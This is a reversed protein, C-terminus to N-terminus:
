RAVKLVYYDGDEYVIEYQSKMQEVDSIAYSGTEYPTIVIYDVNHKKLLEDRNQPSMYMMMVDQESGTYDVGHYYLFSSSGCVINRGTLSAIANNHHTGTLLVDTPNTHSEVWLAMRVSGVDYLEYDSVYERGMTLVAAFVGLVSVVTVTCVRLPQKFKPLLNPVLDWVFDASAICLFLYAVLMLKNNDYPNPQFLIFECILWLFIGPMAIRRQEKKGFVLLLIPLIFMIGLNKLNFSLYNDMLETNNAWNFSGRVFQEGQAQQFTFGILQPLALILVIALFIGWRTLIERFTHKDQMSRWLQYCLIAVYILLIGIGMGLLANASFPKATLQKQSILILITLTVSVLLIRMTTSFSFAPKQVSDALDQVVFVACCIGLALFSHTHILVLGGALVATICFYSKDKQTRAKFLLALLPFLVAWGFLTARQPILMDCIINHWQVNEQVYNTPTEYFATFIRKFNESGFGENIFYYFGFGGNFFFLAFALLSKGRYSTKLSTLLIKCVEYMGFFVQLLAFYMPLLYAIRLSTGWLYLSSSISDSLFPYALKTGALISYEPPFIQQRAISTIFGLHMNMDGYTSQGSHMALGDPSITHGTLCIATFLFVPILLFIVPDNKVISQLSVHHDREGLFLGNKKTYLLVFLLFTLIGLLHSLRTFGLFFSWLTPVWQLAFSGIVSGLLLTFGWKEKKLLCSALLIGLIQFIMFYSIGLVNGLLSGFM